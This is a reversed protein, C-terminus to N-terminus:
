ANVTPLQPNPSRAAWWTEFDDVAMPPAYLYGQMLTCGLRQLVEFQLESEVGEAVVDLDLQSALGAIMEIISQDAADPLLAVFSRDIKVYDAPLRRLYNLSAHGTGFDDLAVSVGLDRVRALANVARDVDGLLQTETLELCLRRAEAGTRHLAAAVSHVFDARLLTGASVNVAVAPEAGRYREHWRALTRCASDLVWEDIREILGSEEAITIFEAATVVRDGPRWRM